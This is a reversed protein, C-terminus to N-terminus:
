AGRLADLIKAKLWARDANGAFGHSASDIMEVTMRGASPQRYISLFAQATADRKALLIRVPGSFLALSSMVMDGLVQDQKKSIRSIGNIVKRINFGKTLIKRWGELTTLRELYQARIAAPPPWGAEAEVVWPNLLILGDLGAAAHHLAAASAGDCLGLGWLEGIHPCANRFATAAAAIDPSSNRFGPDTGSSDGVGRRDFRFVPYGEASLEAALRAMMRHPGVRTQRGGTVILLGRRNAAPDLTGVLTADACPFTLGARMGAGM